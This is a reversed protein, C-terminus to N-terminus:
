VRHGSFNGTSLGYGESYCGLTTQGSELHTFHKKLEHKIDEKNSIKVCFDKLLRNFDEPNEEHMNHSFNVSITELPFHSKIYDGNIFSDEESSILIKEGNFDRLLKIEDLLKGEGISAAFKERFHFDTKLFDDLHCQKVKLNKYMSQLLRKSDESSLDNKYLLGADPHPKFASWDIPKALPPTGFVFVGEPDLKNLSHLVVHGGLSHGVLIYNELDLHNVLDNLVNVFLDLSYTESAESDGHGPLDLAILNFQSLDKDELQHKFTKLSHSNGHIFVIGLSDSRKNGLYNIKLNQSVFNNM